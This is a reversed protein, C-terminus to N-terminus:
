SIFKAVEKITFDVTVLRGVIEDYVKVSVRTGAIECVNLEKGNLNRFNSKTNVIVKQTQKM